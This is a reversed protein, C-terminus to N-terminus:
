LTPPPPNRNHRSLMAANLSHTWLPFSKKIRYPIRNRDYLTTQFVLPNQHSSVPASYRSILNKLYPLIPEIDLEEHLKITPYRMHKGAIIKLIRNQTYRLKMLVTAPAAAWVHAGYALIPRLCVKYLTLRLSRNLSSSASIYPHLAGAAARVKKIRDAVAPTWSLQRDLVVGLYRVEDSWPIIVGKVTLKHPPLTPRKKSFVIAQTKLPNISLKWDQFFKSALDLHNQLKSVLCQLSWSSTLLASDDAYLATDSSSPLPIDNIYLNFLVPGLISGQPVGATVPLWSSDSGNLSVYLFRDSLYSLILKLFTDNLGYNALKYILAQHWVSDFARALDILVMGAYRNVNIEHTILQSVRVLQHTTSHASRFGFQQNILIRRSDLFERLRLLLGKEFIKGLLSLLSIPRYSEVEDKPKGPKPIPVVRAVKWSAPFYSLSICSRFIYYLQLIIKRDANKLMQAVIRDQGPAKKNKLSKVISSIETPAIALDRWPNDPVFRSLRSLYDEVRQSYPSNLASISDHVKAFNSAFATAKEVDAALLGDASKLPPYVTKASTLIKYSGWFTPDAKRLSKIKDHWSTRRVEMIRHSIEKSLQKGLISYYHAGTRQFMKRVRRRESIYSNLRPDSLLCNAHTPESFTTSKRHCALLFTELTRIISDVEIKSELREKLQFSTTFRRFARWDVVKEASPSHRTGAIPLLLVPKHQTAADDISKCEFASDHHVLFFDLTSPKKPPGPFFTFNQPFILRYPARLAHDHLSKGSRNATSNNWSPHRSNFDGGLVFPTPVSALRNLADSSLTCDPPVYVAAVSIAPSLIRIAVM